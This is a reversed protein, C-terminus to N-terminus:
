EPAGLCYYIESAGILIDSWAHDEHPEEKGCFKMAEM